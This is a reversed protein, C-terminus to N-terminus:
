SKLFPEFHVSPIYYDTLLAPSCSQVMLFSIFDDSRLLINSRIFRKFRVNHPATHFM